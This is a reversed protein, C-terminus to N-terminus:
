LLLGGIMVLASVACAVGAFLGALRKSSLPLEGVIEGTQANLAFYYMKGDKGWVNETTGAKAIPNEGTWFEVTNLVLVDVAGCIAYAPSIVLFVVENVFKNSIGQNWSLLKNFLSFSGICSSMAMTGAMLVIMAKIELKKM